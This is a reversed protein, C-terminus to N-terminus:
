SIFYITTPDKTGLADYNAQSINVINAVAVSGSGGLTTDSRVRTVPVWNTGNWGLVQNSTPASTATDVDSLANISTTGFNAPNCQTLAGGEISYLNNEDTAYVIEGEKLDALSATLASKTGRGVRVPVRNSPTTM